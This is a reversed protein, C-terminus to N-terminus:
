HGTANGTKRIGKRAEEKDESRGPINLYGDTMELALFPLPSNKVIDM